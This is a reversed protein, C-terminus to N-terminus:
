YRWSIASMFVSTNTGTVVTPEGDGDTNSAETNGRWPRVEAHGTSGSCVAEYTPNDTSGAIYGAATAHVGKVRQLALELGWFCGGAFTAYTGDVGSPPWPAMASSSGNGIEAERHVGAPVARGAGVCAAALLATVVVGVGLVLSLPSLSLVSSGKTRERESVMWTM